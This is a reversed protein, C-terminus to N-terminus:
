GAPQRLVSRDTVHRCCCWTGGPCWAHAADAAVKDGERMFAAGKRCPPCIM